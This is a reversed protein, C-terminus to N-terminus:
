LAMGSPCGRETGIGPHDRYCREVGPAASRPRVMPPRGGKPHWPDGPGTVPWWIDPDPSSRDIRDTRPRLSPPEGLDGVPATTTARSRTNGLVLTSDITMMGNRSTANTTRYKQGDASSVARKNAQRITGTNVEM